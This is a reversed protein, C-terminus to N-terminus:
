LIKWSKQDAWRQVIGVIRKGSAGGKHPTHWGRYWFDLLSGSLLPVNVRLGEFDIEILKDFYKAPAGLMISQADEMRPYKRFSFKQENNWATGKSHFLYNKFEFFFWQCCRQKGLKASFWLIDNNDQRKRIRQSPKPWPFLGAEHCYHYYTIRQEPIFKDALFGVDMDKDHEMTGRAYYPPGEKPRRLTPRVAGLLTGFSIFQHEAIRAKDACCKLKDLLRLRDEFM